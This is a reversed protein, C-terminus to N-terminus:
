FVNVTTIRLRKLMKWNCHRLRYSRRINLILMIKFPFRPLKKPLRNVALWSSLHRVQLVSSKYRLMPWSLSVILQKLFNQIDVKSTHMATTTHILVGIVFVKLNEHMELQICM